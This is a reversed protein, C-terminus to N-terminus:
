LTRQRLEWQEKQKQMFEIFDPNSRLNDLDPDKEFLPYCPFGDNAAFRLWKLALEPKNLIAYTEAFHFADHHFHGYGSGLEIARRIKEEAQHEDGLHAALLAQVSTILGPLDPSGAKPTNEALAAAEDYRQLHCLAWIKHYNAAATVDDPLSNLMVLAENHKLQFNTLAALHVRILNHAPNIALALQYEAFAKDFLGIHHYVMGLQHHAEDFSPNLELARKYEAITEEHRFGNAHTWLILGRALHVEPLDSNLLNAREVAIFAKESWQKENAAFFYANLNYARALDAFARAFDPDLKVAQELLAIAENTEENKEKLLRFHAKLFLEYAEPRVKLAENIPPQMELGIQRAIEAAIDRQLYYIGSWNSKYDDSWWKKGTATDVLQLNVRFSEGDREFSGVVLADVNLETAIESSTKSTGKYTMASKAAIVRLDKARSISAILGETVGVALYEQAADGSLNELPLIALSHIQPKAPAPIDRTRWFYVSVFLTAVVLAAVFIMMLRHRKWILAGPIIGKEIESATPKLLEDTLERNKFGNSSDDSKTDRLEFGDDRVIETVKAVFRYGLKPITEIYSQGDHDPDLAKRLMWVTRALNAEEVFSDAWVEHMLEDKQVLRGQRKLLHILVEFAKPTLAVPKGKKLLLHDTLDLRFPGFEYIKPPQAVM